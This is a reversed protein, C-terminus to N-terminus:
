ATGSEKKRGCGPKGMGKGGNVADVTLRGAPYIGITLNGGPGLSASRCFLIQEAFFHKRLDSFDNEM